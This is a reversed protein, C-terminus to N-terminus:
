LDDHEESKEDFIDKGDGSDGDANIVIEEEDPENSSKDTSDPEDEDIEIEIEEVPEERDLGFGVNILRQLTGTFQTPDDINFGSNLLAM